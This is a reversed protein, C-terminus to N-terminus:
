VQHLLAKLLLAKAYLSKVQSNGTAQWLTVKPPLTTLHNIIGQPKGCPEENAVEVCLLTETGAFVFWFRGRHFCLRGM